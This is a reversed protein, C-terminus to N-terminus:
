TLVTGLHPTLTRLTVLERQGPAAMGTRYPDTEAAM